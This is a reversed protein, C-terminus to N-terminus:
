AAARSTYRPRPSFSVASLGIAQRQISEFNVLDSRDYIAPFHTRTDWSDLSRVISRDHPSRQQLSGFQCQLGDCASRTVADRASRGGVCVLSTAKKSVIGQSICEPAESIQLRLTSPETVTAMRMHLRRLCSCRVRFTAFLVVGFRHFSM